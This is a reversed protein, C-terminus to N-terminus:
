TSDYTAGLGLTANASTAFAIVGGKWSFNGGASGGIGYSLGLTGKFTALDKGGSKITVNGTTDVKGGGNAAAGVTANVKAGSEVGSGNVLYSAGGEYGLSAIQLGRSTEASATVVSPTGTGGSVPTAPVEVTAKHAKTQTQSGV